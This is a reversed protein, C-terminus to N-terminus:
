VLLLREILYPFSYLAKPIAKDSIMKNLDIRLSNYIGCAWVRTSKVLLIISLLKIALRIVCTLIFCSSILKWKIMSKTNSSFGYMM